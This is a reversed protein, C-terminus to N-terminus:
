VMTQTIFEEDPESSQKEVALQNIKFIDREVVAALGRQTLWPPCSTPYTVYLGPVVPNSISYSPSDRAFLFCQDTTNHDHPEVRMQTCFSLLSMWSPKGAFTDALNILDM